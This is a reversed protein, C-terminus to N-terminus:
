RKPGRDLRCVKASFRGRISTAPKQADGAFEFALTGQVLGDAELNVRTLEVAGGPEFFYSKRGVRASPLAFASRAASTQSSGSWTYSGATPVSGPPTTVVITVRAQGEAPPVFRDCAAEYGALTIRLESPRAVGEVYEALSSQPAFQVRAEPGGGVVLDITPAREACGLALM